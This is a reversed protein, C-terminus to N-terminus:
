RVDLSPDDDGWALDAPETLNTGPMVQVCGKLAGLLPHRRARVHLSAEPTPERQGPVSGGVKDEPENAM